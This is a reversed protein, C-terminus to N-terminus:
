TEEKIVYHIDKIPIKTKKAFSALLELVDKEKTKDFNTIAIILKTM